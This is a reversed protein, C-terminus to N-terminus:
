GKCLLLLGLGSDTRNAFPDPAREEAARADFGYIVIAGKKQTYRMDTQKEVYIRCFGACTLGTDITFTYPVGERSIRGGLAVIQVGLPNRDFFSNKALNFAQLANIKCAKQQLFDSPLIM